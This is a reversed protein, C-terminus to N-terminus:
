KSGRLLHDPEPVCRLADVHQVEEQNIGHVEMWVKILGRANTLHIDETENIVVGVKLQLLPPITPDRKM